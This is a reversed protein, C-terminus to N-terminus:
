DRIKFPTESDMAAREQASLRSRILRTTYGGVLYGSQVYMWDSVDSMRFTVRQMFALGRLKPENAITGQLRSKSLDLDALWIHENEGGSQFRVKLLFSAQDGTPHSFADLFKPLTRRAQEIAQNMGSDQSEFPIIPDSAPPTAGRVSRITLTSGAVVFVLGLASLIVERQIFNRDIFVSYRRVIWSVLIMAPILFLLGVLILVIGTIKMVVGWLGCGPDSLLHLRAVM